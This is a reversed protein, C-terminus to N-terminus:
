QSSDIMNPAVPVEIENKLDFSGIKDIKGNKFQVSKYDFERATLLMAEIAKKFQKTNELVTEASFTVILQQDLEEFHAFQVSTPITTRIAANEPDDGFKMAEFAESIHEYRNISPVYLEPTTHDYQYSYMARKLHHEVNEEEILGFHSLNIGKQGDTTFIIKDFGQYMFTENVTNMFINDGNNDYEHDTPVNVVIANEESLYSFEADLPFYDALGYSAENLREGINNLKEVNQELTAKGLLITLPVYYQVDNTPIAVTIYNNGELDSPYLVSVEELQSITTNDNKESSAMRAEHVEEVGSEKQVEKEAIDMTIHQSNSNQKNNTKEGLLITYSIITFIFIAAASVFLARYRYQKKRKTSKVADIAAFITQANRVDEVKPLRNFLSEIENEEWLSKKMM